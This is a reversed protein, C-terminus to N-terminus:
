ACPLTVTLLRQKRKFKATAREDDALRPFAVVVPEARGAVM